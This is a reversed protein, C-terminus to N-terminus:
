DEINEAVGKAGDGDIQGPECPVVAHYHAEGLGGVLLPVHRLTGQIVTKKSDECISQLFGSTRVRVNETM